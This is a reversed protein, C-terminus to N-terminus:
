REQGEHGPRPHQCHHLSTPGYPGDGPLERRGSDRTSSHEGVCSPSCYYQGARVLMCVDDGLAKLKCM